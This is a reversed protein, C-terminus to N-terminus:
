FAMGLQAGVGWSDLRAGTTRMLDNFYTSRYTFRADAMFAGYAMELGGGYPVTMIDDLSAVDSSRTETNVVNYRSWGLGVFGFPEFLSRGHIVPINIRMAGEVGNSVLAARTGFGLANMNHAAGVYAAELGVFQRTGAVARANWFGGASTVDQLTGATFQQFGGGVLVAAGLRALGYRPAPQVVRALAPDPVPQVEPDAPPVAEPIAEARVEPPAPTGPENADAATGSGTGGAADDALDGARPGTSPNIPAPVFAPPQLDPASETQARASAWSGSLPLAVAAVLTLRMKNM